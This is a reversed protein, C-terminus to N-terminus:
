AEWAEVCAGLGGLGLEWLGSGMSLEEEKARCQCAFIGQVRQPKPDLPTPTMKALDLLHKPRLDLGMTALTSLMHSRPSWMMLPKSKYTPNANKCNDVMCAMTRGIFSRLQLRLSTGGVISRFGLGLSYDQLIKVKRFHSM